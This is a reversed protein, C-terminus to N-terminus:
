RDYLDERRLRKRPLKFLGKSSANLFKEGATIRDRRFLMTHDIAEQIWANLSMNREAAQVKAQRILEVPLNLTLNRKLTKGTKVYNLTDCVFIHHGSLGCQSSCDKEHRIFYKGNEICRFSCEFGPQKVVARGLGHLIKDTERLAGLGSLWKVIAENKM